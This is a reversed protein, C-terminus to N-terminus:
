RFCTGLCPVWGEECGQQKYMCDYNREDEGGVCQEVMDCRLASPVEYHPSSCNYRGSDVEPPLVHSSYATYNITFSSQVVSVDDLGQHSATITQLVAQHSRILMPPVPLDSKIVRVVQEQSPQPGQYVILTHDGRETGGIHLAIHEVHLVIHLHLDLDILWCEVSNDGQKWSLTGKAETLTQLFKGPCLHHSNNAHTHDYRTHLQSESVTEFPFTSNTSSESVVVWGCLGFLVLSLM